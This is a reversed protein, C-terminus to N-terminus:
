VMSPYRMMVAGISRIVGPTGRLRDLDEVVAGDRVTM